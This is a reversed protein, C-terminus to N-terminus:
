SCKIGSALGTLLKKKTCIGSEGALYLSAIDGHMGSFLHHLQYQDITNGPSNNGTIDNASFEGAM